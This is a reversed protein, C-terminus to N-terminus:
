IIRCEDLLSSIQDQDLHNGLFLIATSPDVRLDAGVSVSESLELKSGVFQIM